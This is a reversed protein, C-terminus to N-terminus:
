FMRRWGSPEDRVREYTTGGEDEDFYMWCNALPGDDWAIAMEVGGCVAVIPTGDKPAEAMDRYSHKAM